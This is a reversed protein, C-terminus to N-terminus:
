GAFPAFVASTQRLCPIPLAVNWAQFAFNPPM